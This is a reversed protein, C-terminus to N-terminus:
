LDVPELCWNDYKKSLYSVSNDFNILHNRTKLLAVEDVGKILYELSLNNELNFTKDKPQESEPNLSSFHDQAHVIKNIITKSTM